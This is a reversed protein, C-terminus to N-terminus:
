RREMEQLLLTHLPLERNYSLLPSRLIRVVSADSDGPNAGSLCTKAGVVGVTVEDSM